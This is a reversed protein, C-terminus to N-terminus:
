HAGMTAPGADVDVGADGSSRVSNVVAHGSSDIHIRVDLKGKKDLERRKAAFANVEALTSAGAARAQRVIKPVPGKGTGLKLIRGDPGMVTGDALIQSGKPLKSEGKFEDTAGHALHGIKDSLGTERDIWKGVKWGVLAAAIVGSVAMLAPALGTLAATAAEGAVPLASLATVLGKGGILAIRAVGVAGSFASLGLLVPALAATAVGFGIVLEGIQRTLEPNKDVFKGIKDVVPELDKTLKLLVPILKDGLRIELDQLKSQFEKMKGWTTHELATAFDKSSGAAKELDGTLKQLGGSGAERMLIAAGTAARMGFIEKLIQAQRTSGLDRTKAQLESLVVSLGRFNGKSDSVQIGLGHLLKQAGKTPAQLMLFMERLSTGAMTGVVGADALKAAAAATEEISVGAKAAQPAVYKMTEGIDEVHQNSSNAAKAVVDMVGGSDSMEKNFGKTVSTAISTATALDLDSTIAFELMPGISGIIEKTHLGARGLTQMGEAAQSATFPTTRGMELAKARLTDFDKGTANSLKGVTVISKEFETALRIPQEVMARARDSARKMGDAALSLQGALDFSKRVKGFDGELKGLEGRIRRVGATFQDRLRIIISADLSM